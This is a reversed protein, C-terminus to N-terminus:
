VEMQEALELADDLEIGLYRIMSDLKTHGLLIQVARINKTRRYILAAKTRRLSHTGYNAPDLDSKQSGATWSGLTNGLRCTGRLWEALSYTIRQIGVRGRHDM